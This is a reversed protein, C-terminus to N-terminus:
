KVYCLCLYSLNLSTPECFMHSHTSIWDHLRWTHYSQKGVDSTLADEANRAEPKIKVHLLSSLSNINLYFLPQNSAQTVSTQERCSSVYIGMTKKLLAATQGSSAPTLNRSFTLDAPIRTFPQTSSERWAATWIFSPAAANLGVNTTFSLWRTEATPDASIM